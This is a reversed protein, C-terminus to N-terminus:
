FRENMDKIIDDIDWKYNGSYYYAYFDILGQEFGNINMLAELVAKQDSTSLEILKNYVKDLDKM